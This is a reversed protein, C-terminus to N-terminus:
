QYSVYIINLRDGRLKIPSNHIDGVVYTAM